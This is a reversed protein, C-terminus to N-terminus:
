HHRFYNNAPPRYLLATATGALTLSVLNSAYGTWTALPVPTGTYVFLLTFGFSGVAILLVLGGIVTLLIRAWDRGARMALILGLWLGNSVLLGAVSAVTIVQAISAVPAHLATALQAASRETSEGGLVFLNVLSVLVTVGLAGLMLVVARDVVSPRPPRPTRLGADVPHLVVEGADSVSEYRSPASPEDGVTPQPQNM